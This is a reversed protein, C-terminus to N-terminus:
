VDVDQCCTIVCVCLRMVESMYSCWEMEDCIVTCGSMVESMYVWREIIDDCM